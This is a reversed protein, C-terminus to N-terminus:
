DRVRLRSLGGPGQPLTVGNAQAAPATASAAMLDPSRIAWNSPMM